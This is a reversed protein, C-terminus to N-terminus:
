RLKYTRHIEEFKILKSANFNQAKKIDNFAEQM